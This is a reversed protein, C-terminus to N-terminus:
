STENPQSTHKETAAWNAEIGNSTSTLLRFLHYGIDGLEQNRYFSLGWPSV